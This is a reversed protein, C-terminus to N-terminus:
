DHVLAGLKAHEAPSLRRFRARLEGHHDQHRADVGGLWAAGVFIMAETADKGEFALSYEQPSQGDMSTYFDTNSSELQALIEEIRRRDDIRFSAQYDGNPRWRIVEIHEVKAAPPLALPDTPCPDMRCCATLLFAPVVVAATKM